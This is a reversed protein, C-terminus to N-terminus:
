NEDFTASGYLKWLFLSAASRYPRWKEVLAESERRKKPREPLSKLRKLGEQLALDDAPWIDQRQEAFMLYIEASWRGFGRIASIMAIGSEDDLQKLREFCLSGNELARCLAKVYSVKRYSLGLARLSEDDSALLQNPTPVKNEFGTKLKEFISAAAKTSLQQSVLARLLTEFGRTRVRPEPYGIQPLLRAIDSDCQALIDLHKQIEEQTKM